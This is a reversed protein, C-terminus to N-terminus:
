PKSCPLECLYQVIASLQNLEVVRIPDIEIGLEDELAVQLEVFAVSELGLDDAITASRTIQEPPVGLEALTSAVLNWVDETKRESSSNM